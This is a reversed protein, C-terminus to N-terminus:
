IQGNDLYASALMHQSTLRPYAEEDLIKKHAEVVRELIPIGKKILCNSLYAIALAYESALRSLDEEALTRAQVAVVHEFIPIAKKIQHNEVYASALTHHSRLRYPNEEALTRKQVATVHQLISIAKEIQRDDLYASALTQQSVLRPLEEDALTTKQVTVVHELLPIAKQIQRDNVYTVALRHEILQRVNDDHRLHAVAWDYAETLPLTAEKFRRHNNLCTGVQVSLFYRQETHNEKSTQLIRIAHPLYIKSKAWDDHDGKRIPFITCIHQIAKNQTYAPQRNEQEDWVKVAMHVLRHMSFTDEREKRLFAYGILTGISDVMQEESGLNPLISQPIEKPEIQSIFSLLNAADPDNQRIQNFSILWTTAVASSSNNGTCTVNDDFKRSLLKIMDKETGRLIDLYKAISIQNRTMYAAAQVIALPLCVLETLLHEMIEEDCWDDSVLSAADQFRTTILIAGRDHYPLYQRTSRLIDLDDLNDLILLWPVTSESSLHRRVLDMLDDEQNRREILLAKAIDMYGQEIAAFSITSVWFVLHGPKDRKTRHALELAVQTKGIGGLGVLAVRSKKQVFLI